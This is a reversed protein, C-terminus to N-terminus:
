AVGCTLAVQTPEDDAKEVYGRMRDKQPLSLSLAPGPKGERRRPIM